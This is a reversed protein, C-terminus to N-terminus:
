PFRTSAESAIVKVLGIGVKVEGRFSDPSLVDVSQLDSLCPTIDNLNLLFDYAVKRSTLTGFSGEL